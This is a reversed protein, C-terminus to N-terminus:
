FGIAQTINPVVNQELSRAMNELLAELQDTSWNTIDQTRVSSAPAEATSSETANITLTGSSVYGESLSSLNDMRLIHDAGGNESEAVEFHVTTGSLADMTVDYTGYNSGFVSKKEKDYEFTVKVDGETTKTTADGTYMSGDKTYSSVTDIDETMESWVAQSYEKEPDGDMEIVLLVGDKNAFRIEKARDEAVSLTWTFEQEDLEKGAEEAGDRLEQAAKKLQEDLESEFDFGTNGSARAFMNVVEPDAINCVAEKLKEDEELHDALDELMKQIDEATPDCTYVTGTYDAELRELTFDTKKEKTVNDDNVASCIIGAYDTAIETWEAGSFEPISVKSLDVDMGQKQLMASLDATYYTDDLAPLYFGVTGGDYTFIGDLVPSGMLNLDVNALVSSGSADVKLGISSDKTVATVMSGMFANDSQVDASITMDSSFKGSGLLDLNKELDGMSDKFLADYQYKLFEQSPTMGVKGRLLFFAGGGIACVGVAAAAGIILGKGKKKPPEQAPAYNYNNVPTGYYPQQPPVPAAPSVAGQPRMQQPASPAPEATRIKEGCSTCFKANDSLQAGCNPCFSM